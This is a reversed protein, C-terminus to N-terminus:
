RTLTACRSRLSASPEASLLGVAFAPAGAKRSPAAESAGAPSASYSTETAGKRLGNLCSGEAVAANAASRGAAGAGRWPSRWRATTMPPPVPAGMDMRVSRDSPSSVLATTAMASSPPDVPMRRSSASTVGGPSTRLHMAAKARSGFSGSVRANLYRKETARLWVSPLRMSAASSSAEPDNGSATRM